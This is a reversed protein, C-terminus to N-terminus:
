KYIHITIHASSPFLYININHIELSYVIFVIYANNYEEKEGKKMLGQKQRPNEPELHAAM